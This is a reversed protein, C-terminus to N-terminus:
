HSTEVQTGSNVHTILHPLVEECALQQRQFAQEIAQLM